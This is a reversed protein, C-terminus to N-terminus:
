EAWGSDASPYISGACQGCAFVPNRFRGEALSTASLWGTKTTSSSGNYLRPMVSNSSWSAIYCCRSAVVRLFISVTHKGDKKYGQGKM